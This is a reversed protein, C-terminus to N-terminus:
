ADHNVLLRVDCRQAWKCSACAPGPCGFFNDTKDLQDIHWSLDEIYADLSERKKRADDLRERYKASLSTRVANGSRDTRSLEFLEQIEHLGLGYDKLQQIRRLRVANKSSYRRHAGDGRDMSELLGLEEYYRVTRPTIGFMTALDGIKYSREQAMFQGKVYVKARPMNGM